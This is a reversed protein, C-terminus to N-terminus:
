PRARSPLADIQDKTLTGVVRARCTEVGGTGGRSTIEATDNACLRTGGSFAQVTVQNAMSLNFCAGTTDLQFVKRDLMRLYLTTDNASAYNTIRSSLFCQDPGRSAMGAATPSATSGCASGLLLAGLAAPVLIFSRM